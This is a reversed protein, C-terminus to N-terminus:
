RSKSLMAIDEAQARTDAVCMAILEGVHRVKTTRTDTSGFGQVGATGFASPYTDGTQPRLSFFRSECQMPSSLKAIRGHAVPSGPLRGARPGPLQIDGVFEGRGRLYRDDEKRLSSVGVGNKSMKKQSLYIPIDSSRALSRTLSTHPEIPDDAGVVGSILNETNLATTDIIGSPTFFEICSPLRAFWNELDLRATTAQELSTLEFRVTDGPRLRAVTALDSSIVCGIKPYGGTTQRDAM